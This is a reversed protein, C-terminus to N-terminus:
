DFSIVTFNSDAHEQGEVEAWLKATSEIETLKLAAHQCAESMLHKAQELPLNELDSLAYGRDALYREILEQELSFQSSEVSQGEQTSKVVASKEM